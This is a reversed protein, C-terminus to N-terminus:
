PEKGGEAQAGLDVTAPPKVGMLTAYPLDTYKVQQSAAGVFVYYTTAERVTVSAEYVGGGLAKAPVLTRDRGDSAYYLVTVDPIDAKPEGTVPDTLKFKVPASAGLPVARQDIQFEVGMPGAAQRVEPNPEVPTSFCHLFRPSDMVFAVDYTGEVPIKVRGTYVGPEREALSRDAIEIARADHGYNRFSGMPANMGEMYYYVTGEAQNVVYAAAEKVSPIISDAIGVELARGPAGQGAPFYTVPPVGADDLSALAIMGVQESGLSRVYAYQRTFSVQYPQSGVPVTQALKDTSADIVYVNGDSPNVALGWRGDPSFRLPGLGPKAEIRARVELREPDVVTITGDKGDAVYIAKGLPSLALAIPVPGTQIDKVKALTRVDIVSVTGGDRNSVFAYRDDDSFAIEHHGAGTPIFAVKQLSASDIVSVGSAEARGANNGVWLYRGDNQLEVRTPREGADV